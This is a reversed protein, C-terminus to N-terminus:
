GLMEALTTVDVKGVTMMVHDNSFYLSVCILHCYKCCCELVSKLQQSNDLRTSSKARSGFGNVDAAVGSVNTSERSAQTATV